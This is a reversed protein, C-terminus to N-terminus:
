PAPERRRRISQNLEENWREFEWTHVAQEVTYETLGLAFNPDNPNELSYSFILQQSRPVVVNPEIIWVFSNPMHLAFPSDPVIASDPYPPVTPGEILTSGVSCGALLPIHLPQMTLLEGNSFGISVRMAWVDGSWTVGFVRNRRSNQYIVQNQKVAASLSVKGPYIKRKVGPLGYRNSYYDVQLKEEPTLRLLPWM